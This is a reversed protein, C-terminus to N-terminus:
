SLAGPRDHPPHPTYPSWPRVYDRLDGYTQHDHVLQRKEVQVVREHIPQVREAPPHRLKSVLPPQALLIGGPHDLQIGVPRQRHILEEGRHPLPEPKGRRRLHQQRRESRPHRFQDDARGLHQGPQSPQPLGTPPYPEHGVPLDVVLGALDSAAWARVARSPVSASADMSTKLAMASIRMAAERASARRRRPPCPRWSPARGREGVPWRGPGGSPGRRSRVACRAGALRGPRGPGRWLSRQAFWMWTVTMAQLDCCRWGCRFPSPRQGAPCHGERM